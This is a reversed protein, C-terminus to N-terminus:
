LTVTNEHDFPSHLWQSRSRNVEMGNTRREMARPPTNSPEGLLNRRSTTMSSLGRIASIVLALSCHPLPSLHPSPPSPCRGYWTVGGLRAHGQP